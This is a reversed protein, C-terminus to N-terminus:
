RAAFVFNLLNFSRSLRSLSSPNLYAAARLDRANYGWGGSAVTLHVMLGPARQKAPKRLGAMVEDKKVAKPFYMRENQPNVQRM